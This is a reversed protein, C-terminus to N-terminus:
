PQSGGIGTMTIPYDTGDVDITTSTSWPGAASPTFTYTFQCTGLAPLTIGACNQSGGFNTPDIPAGGAYNPTVPNPGVNSVVVDIEATTGVTVLGFDLDLPALSIPSVGIGSMTIAFNASDVGITTSSTWPGPAAPEFTYTFECTGLEPLTLGACNQSGGFHTPDNPAGGSYNPTVAGPGGNTVVVTISAM